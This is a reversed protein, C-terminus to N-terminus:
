RGTYEPFHTFDPCNKGQAHQTSACAGRRDRFGLIPRAPLFQALVQISREDQEPIGLAAILDEADRLVVIEQIEGAPATTRIVRSRSM